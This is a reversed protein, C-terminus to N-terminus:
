KPTDNNRSRRLKRLLLRIPWLLVAFLAVVIGIVWSLLSGVLSLGAGPGIYALAVSPACLLALLVLAIFFPM